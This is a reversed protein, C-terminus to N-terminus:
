YAPTVISPWSDYEVAGKGAKVAGDLMSEGVGKGAQRSESYGDYADTAGAVIAAGPIAKKLVAKAAKKAIATGGGGGIVRDLRAPDILTGASAPDSALKNM